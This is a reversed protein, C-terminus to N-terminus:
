LQRKQGIELWNALCAIVFLMDRGFIAAGPLSGLLIHYTSCIESGINAVLEDIMESTCTNQVALSSTGIMDSCITHVHELIANAQPNKIM